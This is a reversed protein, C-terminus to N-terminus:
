DEEWPYVIWKDEKEKLYFEPKVLGNQKYYMTTIHYKNIKDGSSNKYYHLLSEGSDCIDDIIICNDIPAALFPINMRHSLIVAFILGGRPIGYIGTINKDKYFNEVEKIYEEINYWSIYEKNM